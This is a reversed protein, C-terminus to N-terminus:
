TLYQPWDLQGLPQNRETSFFLMHKTTAASAPRNVIVDPQLLNQNMRAVTAELDATWFGDPVAM